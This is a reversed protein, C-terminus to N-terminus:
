ASVHNAFCKKDPLAIFPLQYGSEIIHMVFNSAKIDRWNQAHERLRGCVIFTCSQIEPDFDAM